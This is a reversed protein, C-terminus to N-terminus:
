RRLHRHQTIIHVITAMSSLSVIITKHILFSMKDSLLACWEFEFLVFVVAAVVFVAWCDGLNVVGVPDAIVISLWRLKLDL